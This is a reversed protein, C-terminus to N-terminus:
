GAVPGTSSTDQVAGVATAGLAWNEAAQVMALRPSRGANDTCPASPNAPLVLLEDCSKPVIWGPADDVFVHNTLAGAEMPVKVNCSVAWLLEKPPSKEPDALMVNEVVLPTQVTATDGVATLKGAVPPLPVTLMKAGAPQEQCASLLACHIVTVPPAWPLPFPVTVNVTAALVPEVARVPVMATPPWAIAIEWAPADLAGTTVETTFPALKWGPMAAPAHIEIKPVLRLVVV